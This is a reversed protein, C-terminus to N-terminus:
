IDMQTFGVIVRHKMNTQRITKKWRHGYNQAMVDHPMYHLSTSGTFDVDKDM